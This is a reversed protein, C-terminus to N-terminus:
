KATLLGEIYKRFRETNGQDWGIVVQRIIGKQDVIMIQPIGGVRYADGPTPPRQVGPVPRQMAANIAVRYPLEHETAYYHRDAEVEEEPTLNRKAGIYGYLDTVLVADFAKGKFHDALARMGPYSNRCPACWHATFEVITVKGNGPQVPKASDGGNVWWQGTIPAAATGILAYRNRLDAFRGPTGPKGGLETEAQDLIRIARDPELMDAASRALSTYASLLLQEGKGKRALAILANAHTELGRAVDLYEYRSLMAQHAAVKFEDLSDPLADIQTVYREAGELWGFYGASATVAQNMALNLLRGRDRPSLDKKSIARALTNRASATDGIFTYFEILLPIQESPTNDANFGAGCEKAASRADSLLRNYFDTTRAAAPANRFAENRWDNARKMCQAPSDGTILPAKASTDTQSAVAGPVLVIACAIVFQRYM